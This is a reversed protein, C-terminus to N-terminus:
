ATLRWPLNISITGSPTPACMLATHQQALIHLVALLV